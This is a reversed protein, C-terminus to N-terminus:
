PAGGPGGGATASLDFLPLFMSAAMTGVVLGLVILILPEIISTLSKIIVENDEDMFDALSLLVSGIKGTREGSRLAACVSPAILRPDDFAQSIPEGKTVTEEARRLLDQYQSNTTAARTLELAEFLGVRGDVLVGLLRAIRATAFQRTLKGIQPTRLLVADLTRRGTESGLYRWAGFVVLGLGGIVAWWYDRLFHSAAMLAATSPPLPAGLGEFLGEFRPMVFVIMTIIVNVAIFMLLTPYVMAGALAGRIKMQQRMLSALRELMEGLKGRSEGAAVLSRAVSNFWLPHHGMAESLQAGEEVRQRIDKIVNAWAGPPTQKELVVIADVVTTGTSVLVALQRTFGSVQRLRSGGGLTLGRRAAGDASKGGARGAEAVSTVFIGDRRLAAKASDLGEAEMIGSVAKGARDFGQYSCKM